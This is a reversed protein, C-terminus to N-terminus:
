TICVGLLQTSSVQNDLVVDYTDTEDDNFPIKGEKLKPLPVDFSLDMEGNQLISVIIKNAFEVINCTLEINSQIFGKDNNLELNRSIERTTDEFRLSM